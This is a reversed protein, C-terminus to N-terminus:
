EHSLWAHLFKAFSQRKPTQSLQLNSLKSKANKKEGTGSRGGPASSHFAIGVSSRTENSVKISPPEILRSFNVSILTRQIQFTDTGSPVRSEGKTRVAPFRWSLRSQKGTNKELSIADAKVIEDIETGAGRLPQGVNALPDWGAIYQDAKM